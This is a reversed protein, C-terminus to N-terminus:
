RPRPNRATRSSVYVISPYAAPSTDDQAFRLLRPGACPDKAGSLIVRTVERAERANRRHRGHGVRRPRSRPVLEADGDRGPAADAARQQEGGLMGALGGTDLGKERQAKGLAGMVLPALMSLLLGAKSPDLARRRASGPRCPRRGRASCTASSAPATAPTAAASTAPWTTSCAATTAASRTPSRAPRAPIRRTGRSRAWWCRSRPPSPADPHHRSRHRAAPQDPERRQRRTAAPAHRAHVHSGRPPPRFQYGWSRAETIKAGHGGTGGRPDLERDGGQQERGAARRDLGGVEGRQCIALKRLPMAARPWGASRAPPAARSSRCPPAPPTRRRPQRVRNTSALRSVVAALM